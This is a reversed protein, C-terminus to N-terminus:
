GIEDLVEPTLDYGGYLINEGELVVELNKEEALETIVQEIDQLVEGILEEERRSLEEQYEQLMQQQENEGMDEAEEELEMQMEQAELNLQEEAQEKDPHNEFVEQVSVFAIESREEEEARIITGDALILGLGLGVFLAVVVSLSMLKRTTM